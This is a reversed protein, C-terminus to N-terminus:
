RGDVANSVFWLAILVYAIALYWVLLYWVNDFVGSVITVM